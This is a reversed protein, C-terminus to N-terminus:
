YGGWRLQARWLGTRAGVHAGVQVGRDGGRVQFSIPALSPRQVVLAQGASALSARSQGVKGPTMGGQGGLGGGLGPWARAGGAGLYPSAAALGRPAGAGGGIYPSAAATGYQLISSGGPFPSPAVRPETSM